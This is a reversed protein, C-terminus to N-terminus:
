GHSCDWFIAEEKFEKNEGSKLQEFGVDEMSAPLVMELQELKVASPQGCKLESENPNGDIVKRNLNRNLFSATPAPFPHQSGDIPVQPFSAM